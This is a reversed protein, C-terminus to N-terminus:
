AKDGCNIMSNTAIPYSVNNQTFTLMLPGAAAPQVPGANPVYWAGMSFSTPFSSEPGTLIDNCSSPTFRVHSQLANVPDSPCKMGPIVRNLIISPNPSTTDYTRKTYDMAKLAATEEM